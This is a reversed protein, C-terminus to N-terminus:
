SRSSCTGTPAPRRSPTAGGRRRGCRTTPTASCCTSSPPITRCSACSEELPAVVELAYDGEYPRGSQRHLEYRAHGLIFAVSAVERGTRNEKRAQELYAAAQGAAAAYNQENYAAIARSRLAVPDTTKSDRERAGAPAAPVLLAAAVVLVAARVQRRATAVARTDDDGPRGPLAGDSM